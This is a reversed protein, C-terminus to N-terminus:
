RASGGWIPFRLLASDVASAATHGLGCISADRMVQSIEALLTRHQESGLRVEGSQLRQLLEHQRVTGVRCPVCQGCSEHRFFEAIRVLMAGLDVTTDFPMVVASGVTAGIERMAEFTFPTDIEGPHLLAGAAGGVLVAQAQGSGAVGGAMEILEMVTVGFEAEYVGPSAVHGSLCFLKPGSSVDTGLAAYAAGGELLIGPINALTEVNNVLTPRRFLGSQTPYPPKNRPEGRYGEISNFLATEEGCIYAGAGRRIEIPCAPALLGERECDEIAGAMRETSEPYEGRIYVYARGCGTAFSAIALAEVLAYPDGEMLVRDKFTGPESEDANCVAYKPGKAALVARWKRGTPFAAGGRGVLNSAEVQEVVWERGNRVALDLAAFGGDRLYGQLSEGSPEGVRHLLRLGGTGAQPVSARVEAGAEAARGERHCVREIAGPTAPASVAHWPQEGAGSILAAPARECLGLCPSRTWIVGNASRGGGEPIPGSALDDSLRDFGKAICAIDDCVRVVVPPRPSLSFMDYFTAVGYAEAPPVGLRRCCYNLAGRSIWGCRDSIAHLVPLLLHRKGAGRHGAQSTRLDSALIRDGGTWNSGPEGLLSDVAERETDTPADPTFHLDM